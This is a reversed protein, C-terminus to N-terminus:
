EFGEKSQLSALDTQDCGARLSVGELSGLDAVIDDGFSVTYLRRGHFPIGDTPGPSESGAGKDRFCTDQHTPTTPKTPKTPPNQIKKM